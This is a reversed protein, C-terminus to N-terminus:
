RWMHIESDADVILLQIVRKYYSQEWTTAIRDFTAGVERCGQRLATLDASRRSRRAHPFDKSGMREDLLKGESGSWDQECGPM